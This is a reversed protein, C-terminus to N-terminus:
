NGGELYLTAYATGASLPDTSLTLKVTNTGVIPVGPDPALIHTDNEACVASEYIVNADSNEISVVGTVVAGSLAPMVLIIRTALGSAKITAATYVTTGSVISITARATKVLKEHLHLGEDATEFGEGLVRTGAM